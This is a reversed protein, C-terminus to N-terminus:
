VARVHEWITWGGVAMFGLGAILKLPIMTLHREALSGLFVALATSVVLALAAAVFVLWPEHRGDSAFLITAFQTKDALEAMFVTAFVTFYPQM